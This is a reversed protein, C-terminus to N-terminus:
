VVNDKIFDEIFDSLLFEISVNFVYAFAYLEYDKVIRNGTEIKYLSPKPIDIGILALKTSLGSLSLNNQICLRIRYKFYFINNLIVVIIIM